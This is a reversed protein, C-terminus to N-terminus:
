PRVDIKESGQFDLPKPFDPNQLTAQVSISVNVDETPLVPRDRPWVFIQKTVSEAPDLQIPSEPIGSIDVDGKPNQATVEFSAAHDFPNSITVSVAGGGWWDGGAALQSVEVAAEPLLYTHVKTEFIERAADAAPGSEPYVDFIQGDSDVARYTITDANVDAVWFHPVSGAVELYWPRQFAIRRPERGWCGDGLYLTGNGDTAVANNKLLKTRKFTHDHNEFAVTLGFEDFLPAWFHRGLDSHQGMFDRHSPYLPVHYIAARHPIESNTALQDRIWGVQEKHSTIHGSDLILFFLNQGFQRAFYSDEPNQGFFNFFFPAASKPQSYGGNVEHNGIALVLPISRGDSTVMEEAYFQLWEDWKGVAELKGNAYAIDGGVLAVDPDFKAAERLLLRMENSTGMDGGTVFRLPSDDASITRVKLEKSVKGGPLSAVLHYTEGPELDTLEVRHLHRDPLGDIRSTGGSASSVYAKIQGDRGVPDYFVRAEGPESGFTQWNVTLTTSPDGQYTFIVNEPQVEAADLMAGISLFIASLFSFLFRVGKPRISELSIIRDPPFTAPLAIPLRFEM